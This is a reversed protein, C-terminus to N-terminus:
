VRTVYEFEWIVFQSYAPFLALSIINSRMSQFSASVALYAIGTINYDNLSTWKKQKQDDNTVEMPTGSESFLAGLETFLNTTERM